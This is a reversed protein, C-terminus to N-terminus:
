ARGLHFYQQSPPGTKESADQLPMQLFGSKIVDIQVAEVIRLILSGSFHSQDIQALGIGDFGRKLFESRESRNPVNCGLQRVLGLVLLREPIGIDLSRAVHRFRAATM